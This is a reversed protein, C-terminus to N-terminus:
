AKPVEKHADLFPIAATRAPWRDGDPTEIELDTGAAALEIPVWVYGINRALRPSWILDTVTGVPVGHHLAPRQEAIEFSLADGAVEIGVLKRTVGVERIAELAAKGIYDAAQREVLRELGMIEFPNNAITMDSGYNFIGAEIRRAECPAIPRIDHAKGATMVRDWLDGGRGRDRLYIEYGVEGTWGTRSIVVPIGDLETQMTWYYRLDLVAPGFLAAMVDKSRPGQVQIPYVEPERVRVDLGAHVAVGRAWLGADSDALALWWRDAEVRLLVPDNVIGGDDATILVYKAQGVACRTLDRCTLTNVFASADPGTIEVIREVSVDWVTVANLLHWYEEIPDAYYGPLYMHNYVDYASCGAALTREFFPSRRYWPGFYLTSSTAREATQTASM